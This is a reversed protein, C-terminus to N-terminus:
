WKENKYVAAVVVCVPDGDCKVKKILFNMQGFNGGRLDVASKLDEELKRRVEGESGGSEEMFVGSGDGRTVWGLGACADEGQNVAVGKSLVVYLRDGIKKKGETKQVKVECNKPIVSSLQILNFDGIGADWLAADFAALETTCKGLGSTVSILM